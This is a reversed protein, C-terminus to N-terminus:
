KQKKKKKDRPVDSFKQDPTPHTDPKQQREITLTKAKNQYNLQRSIMKMNKLDPRFDQQFLDVTTKM